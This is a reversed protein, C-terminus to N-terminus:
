KEKIKNIEKLLGVDASMPVSTNFSSQVDTGIYVSMPRCRYRHILNILKKNIENIEKLLDIDASMPVSTKLVTKVDSSIYVSM